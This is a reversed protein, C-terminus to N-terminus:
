QEMKRRLGAVVLCGVIFLPLLIWSHFEPITDIEVPNMLPYNDRDFEMDFNIILYPTDGIGDGDSDEGDYDDWYNGGSPYGNDLVCSSTPIFGHWASDYYHRTNNIFNNHYITDYSGETYLGYYNNELICETLNNIGRAYIAGYTETIRCNTVTNNIETLYVGFQFNRIKLNKVTVNNRDRLYIGYMVSYGPGELTFGTGDIVINDKEVEIGYFGSDVSISDTFVYFDGNKQIKDTGEVTGDERIYITTQAKVTSINM